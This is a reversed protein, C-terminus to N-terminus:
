CALDALAAAFVALLDGAPWDIPDLLGDRWGGILAGEEVIAFAEMPAAWAILSAQGVVMANAGVPRSSAMSLRIVPITCAISM